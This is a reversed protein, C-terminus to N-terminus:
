DYEEFLAPNQRRIWWRRVYVGAGGLAVCGTVILVTTAPPFGPEPIVPGPAPAQPVADAGSSLVTVGSGICAPCAPCTLPQVM